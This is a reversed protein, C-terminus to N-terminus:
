KRGDLVLERDRRTYSDYICDVVYYVNMANTRDSTTQINTPYVDLVNLSDKEVKLSQSFGRLGWKTASYLTRNAKVELGVMSNINIVDTLQDLLMHTLIIPATLNVSIMRHIEDNDYFEFRKNPCTIAANNVLVDVGMSRAESALSEVNNIKSLDFHKSGLHKIVTNGEKEFKEVLYKGLGSNSGTILVTKKM